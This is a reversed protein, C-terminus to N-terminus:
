KQWCVQVYTYMDLQDTITNAINHKMRILFFGLLPTKVIPIIVPRM